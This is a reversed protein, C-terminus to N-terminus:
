DCTSVTLVAEDSLVPGCGNTVELQYSGADDLTVSPIQYFFATAGQIPKGDRFWQYTLPGMGAASAFFTVSQGVCRDASLPQSTIAADGLNITAPGSLVSFGCDDTIRVRYSGLDAPGLSEFELTTGTEGPIDVGNKLWQYTLPGNESEAEVVMVAPAGSCSSISDPNDLITPEETRVNITVIDSFAVGCDSTVVVRYDQEDAPAADIITLTDSNAGDIFGGNLTWQYSINDGSAAINFTVNEGLCVDASEPQNSISLTCTGEYALQFGGFDLLDVDFDDDFDASECTLSIPGADMGTFCLQFQGFDLLDVDGDGDIDGRKLHIEDAGIDLAGGGIRPEGDIDPGDLGMLVVDDAADLCPSEQYDIRYTQDVFAPDQDIDGAGQVFIGGSVAFEAGNLTLLGRINSFGTQMVGLTDLYVQNGLGAATNGYVISNLAAVAGVDLCLVDRCGVGIGGGIANSHNGAVTCNILVALGGLDVYVGGGAASATNDKILSSIMVPGLFDFIVNESYFGGGLRASNNEITCGVLLSTTLGGAYIGGGKSGAIMGAHNNRIVCNTITAGAEQLYIGAGKLNDGVANGGEIFFGDLIATIDTDNGARVVHFSNDAAVGVEGIDGSLITPHMKPNRSGPSTETGNFGGYLEVARALHFSMSRNGAGQDPLYVGEAVWLQVVGGCAALKEANTLATQLDPLATSWSLGDSVGGEAPSAANVHLIGLVNCEDPSGDEDCDASFGGAIDCEDPAGNLNCDPSTGELLDCEDAAGNGNCDECEDPLFNGNCDDSEGSSVDIQDVVGNGNCDFPCAIAQLGFSQCIAPFNPTGNSLDADDDDLSLVEMATTPHASDFGLGGVTMRSWDTFLQQSFELAAADGMEEASLNRLDWWFGGLVQGCFHIEGICPYLTREAPDTENYFDYDRFHNGPGRVDRGIIPDDYALISMVDGFGEGFAGQLLGLRNVIFHGYEHAVVGAYGTNTCTCSCDVDFGSAFFNISLNGGSFFANCTDDLNVNAPINIDLGDFDPQRSKFFDHVLNTHHFVNVQATTFESPTESFLFDAVGPPTLMQELQLLDGQDTSVEVWPSILDAFITQPSPNLDLSYQGSADTFTENEDGDSIHLEALPILEPPNSPTDPATGPTAAGQVQGTVADHYIENRVHLLESTAADVFFTFAKMDAPESSWGRFKWTKRVPQMDTPIDGAYVVLYPTEWQDLGSYEARNQVSSLASGADITADPFAAFPQNALRGASYIVTNGAGEDVILRVLSGEVPLRDITQQFTLVTRQGDRGIASEDRFTFAANGTGLADGHRSLWAEAAGRASESRTMFGHAVRIGPSPEFVQVGPHEAKLRKVAADDEVHNAGFQAAVTSIGSILVTGLVIAATTNGRGSM